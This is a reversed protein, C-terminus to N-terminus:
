RSIAYEEILTRLADADRPLDVVHRPLDEIGDFRRPRPPVPNPRCMQSLTTLRTRPPVIATFLRTPSPLAKM